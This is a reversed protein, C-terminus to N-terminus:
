EGAARHKAALRVYHAASYSFFALEQETLRRVQKVPSGMYLWGSELRKGPPVLSNAGIMVQDEIIARDLVISGIGVLVQNGITCGHLTVSHGITVNKGIHLPAGADTHLVSNEQINSNEGVIIPENDGRLVAGFWVNAGAELTVQGILVASPAVYTREALNPSHQDLRYIPM